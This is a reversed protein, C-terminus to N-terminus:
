LILVVLVFLNRFLTIVIKSQRANLTCVGCREIIGTWGVLKMCTMRAVPGFSRLHLRVGTLVVVQQLTQQDVAVAITYVNTSKKRGSCLYCGRLCDGSNPWLGFSAM